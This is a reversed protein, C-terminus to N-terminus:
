RASAPQVPPGTMKLQWMLFSLEDVFNDIQKAIPTGGSHGAKTDYHLLIPKDSGTSAQMLAAMKRAHLPAVRTDSDGTVFLVPPYKTGANVHQYPSYAYIYKFQDPDESSGYEPVWYKAVLFQHYRIMDLLPYNCVVAGFLEPRQTMAAGVLLGGNSGGRIALRDPRTYKNQILWEAAAIFDDFVNQKKELMGAHHWAEGFEGGGRLNALAYVGGNAMWAAALTNFSPESSSNFGGYGTLLTPNNGDMKLGKAYALFMPIKTGDKSPYWVQKVEYQDTQMPVKSQFWVTQKGTAIDYRYLTTPIHFANFGFFAEGSDWYGVLDSLAGIAPPSIERIFKGDLDYLKLRSIVNETTLLAMKGGVLSVGDVVANGEPVVERWHDRVPDNLDVELVRWRPAKWNTQLVMKGGAIRPYFAAEVDNVIPIVPGKRVLDQVYIETKAAASGYYVVIELYHGDESLGSGIIKEPGFGKGFVEADAAADTGIKHFFVRPGEPTVKTFYAGSKDPLIAFGSYRARPFKDPLEKKADVDFLHLTVEDEGGQRLAYGILTGDRSIAFLNVTITHEPSLPLPDVLVEDQGALGKRLYLVSQDQDARRKSFFYRGNRVAPIGMTDIKLFGSIKQRLADRGPVKALLSDTYANESDIWARTESSNQDELWRYADSIKVGQVTDVVVRVETKPPGAPANGPPAQATTTTTLLPTILIFLPISSLRTVRM